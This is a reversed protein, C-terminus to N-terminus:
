KKLNILYDRRKILENAYKSYLGGQAKDTKEIAKEIEKLDMFRIKKNKKPADEVSADQKKEDSM